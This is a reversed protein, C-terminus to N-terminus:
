QQSHASESEKDQEHPDETSTPCLVHRAEGEETPSRPRAIRLSRGPIFSTIGTRYVRAVRPGPTSGRLEYGMAGCPSIDSPWWRSCGDDAATAAHRPSGSGTHSSVTVTRAPGSGTRAGRHRDPIRVASRAYSFRLDSIRGVSPPCWTVISWSKASSLVSVSIRAQLERFWGHLAHEVLLHRGTVDLARAIGRRAVAPIPSRLRAIM